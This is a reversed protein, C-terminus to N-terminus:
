KKAPGVKIVKANEIFGLVEYDKGTGLIIVDGVNVEVDEPVHLWNDTVTNVANIGKKILM